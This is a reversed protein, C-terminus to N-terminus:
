KTYKNVIESIFQIENETIDQNNPLYLGYNHVIDSFEFNLEGYIKKWFPQKGISGCVLPRCEIDNEKLDKVLNMINPTIVPYAFNSYFCNDM